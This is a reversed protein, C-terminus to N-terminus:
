AKGRKGDTILMQAACSALRAPLDKHQLFDSLKKKLVIIAQQMSKLAAEAEPTYDIVVQTASKDGPNGGWHDRVSEIGNPFRTDLKIWEGPTGPKSALTVTEFDLGIVPEDDLRQERFEFRTGSRLNVIIYKHWDLICLEDCLAKALKTCEAADAAGVRKGQVVAFFTRDNRDLMIDVRWGSKYHTFEDVKYPKLQRPM